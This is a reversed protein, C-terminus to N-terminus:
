GLRTMCPGVVRGYEAAFFSEFTLTAAYDAPATVTEVATVRRLGGFRQASSGGM